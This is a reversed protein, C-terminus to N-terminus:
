YRLSLRTINPRMAPGTYWPAVRRPTASSSNSTDTALHSLTHEKIRSALERLEEWEPMASAMRDRKVRANWLNKDHMREHVNDRNIFEESNRVVDAKKEAM